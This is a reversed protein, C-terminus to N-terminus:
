ALGWGVGTDAGSDMFNLELVAQLARHLASDILLYRIHVIHLPPSAHPVKVKLFLSYELKKTM